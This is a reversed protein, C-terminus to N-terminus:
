IPAYRGIGPVRDFDIDASALKTLGNAQMVAIVLADNSLLGTQQSLKAAVSILPPPITLLRLNSQLIEELAIKFRTLSQVIAPKQQLRKKVKTPGVGPLYSAEIMMLRHAVETLIHTSSYGVIDQQEIRLLLQTCALGLTPHPEFHYVLTNADLFLSDGRLVDAFTM